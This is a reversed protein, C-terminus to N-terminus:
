QSDQFLDAKVMLSTAVPQIIKDQDTKNFGLSNAVDHIFQSEKPDYKRDCMVIEILYEFMYISLEENLLRTTEFNFHKAEEEIQELRIQDYKLLQSINEFYKIEAPHVRDDARIAKLLLIACLNRQEESLYELLSQFFDKRIEYQAQEIINLVDKKSVNMSQTIEDILLFDGDNLNRNCALIRLLAKLFVKNIDHTLRINAMSPHPRDDLHYSDIVDDLINSIWQQINKITFNLLEEAPSGFTQNNIRTKITAKPFITNFFDIGSNLLQNIELLSDKKIQKQKKTIENQTLIIM